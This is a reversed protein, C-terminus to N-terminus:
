PEKKEKIKQAMAVGWCEGAEIRTNLNVTAGAQVLAKEGVRVGPLMGVMGGIVAGRGIEVPALYLKGNVLAHGSILAGQGIIVGDDLTVLYPDALTGSLAVNKGIRAGYLQAILPKFFVVSFPTLAGRGFESLIMILKWQTFQPSDMSYLGRRLPKIALVCRVLLGSFIGYLLLFSLVDAIPAYQGMQRSVPTVAFKLILLTLAVVGGIALTALVYDIWNTKM